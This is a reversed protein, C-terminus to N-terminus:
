KKDEKVIVVELKEGEKGTLEQRTTEIMNHNVKLMLAIISANIEKGGFIGTKVLQQKQIDRLKGLANSFEKNDKEWEYLTTKNVDLYLALGEITAIEMNEPVAYKIYEETKAIIQDNYKTPRGGKNKNNNNSM